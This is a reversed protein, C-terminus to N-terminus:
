KFILLFYCHRKDVVYILPVFRLRNVTIQLHFIILSGVVLSLLTVENNNLWVLRGPKQSPNMSKKVAPSNKRM